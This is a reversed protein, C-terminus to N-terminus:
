HARTLFVPLGGKRRYDPRYRETNYMTSVDVSRPGKTADPLKALTYCGNQIGTMKGRDGDGIAEVAMTAFTTAVMKDFFDPEGGRLDYTLDSVVTEIGPIRKIEQPNRGNAM